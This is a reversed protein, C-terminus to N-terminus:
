NGDKVSQEMREGFEGYKGCNRSAGVIGLESGYYGTTEWLERSERVIGVRELLEENEGM